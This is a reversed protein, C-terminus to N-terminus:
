FLELLKIYLANIYRVAKRSSGKEAKELSSGAERNKLSLKTPFFISVFSEQHHKENFEVSFFSYRSITEVRMEIFFLTRLVANKAATCPRKFSNQDTNMRKFIGCFFVFFSLFSNNVAARYTLYAELSNDM